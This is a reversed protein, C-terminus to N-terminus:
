YDNGIIIAQGEGVNEIGEGWARNRGEVMKREKRVFISPLCPLYSDDRSFM